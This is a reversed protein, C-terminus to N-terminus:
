LQCPQPTYVDWVFIFLDFAHVLGTKQATDFTRVHDTKKGGRFIWEESEPSIISHM